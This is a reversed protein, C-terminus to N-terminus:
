ISDLSSTTVTVDAPSHAFWKCRAGSYQVSLWALMEDSLKKHAPYQEHHGTLLTLAASGYRCRKHGPLM